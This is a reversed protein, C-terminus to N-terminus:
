PIVRLSNVMSEVDALLSKDEAPLTSVIVFARGSKVLAWQRWTVGPRLAPGEFYLAEAGAVNVKRMEAITVGRKLNSAFSIAWSDRVRKWLAPEQRPDDASYIGYYYIDMGVPYTPPRYSTFVGRDNAVWKGAITVAFPKPAGPKAFVWYDRLPDYKWSSRTQAAITDFLERWTPKYFAPFSTYLETGGIGKDDTHIAVDLVAYLFSGYEGFTGKIAGSPLRQSLFLTQQEATLARGKQSHGFVAFSFIFLIFTSAVIIRAM